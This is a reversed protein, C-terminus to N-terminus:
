VLRTGSVDVTRGIKGRHRKERGQFAVKLSSGYRVISKTILFVFYRDLEDQCVEVAVVLM